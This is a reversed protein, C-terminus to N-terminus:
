DYKLVYEFTIKLDNIYFHQKDKNWFYVTVSLNDNTVIESYLHSLEIPNWQEQKIPTKITLGEWSLLDDNKRIEIVCVFTNLSDTQNLNFELNVAKLGKGLNIEESKKSFKPGFEIEPTIEVAKRESHITFLPSWNLFDLSDKEFSYFIKSTNRDGVLMGDAYVIEVPAQVLDPNDAKIFLCAEFPLKENIFRIHKLMKFNPNKSLWELSIKGEVEMFHSDWLLLTSDPLDNVFAPNGALLPVVKDSDYPALDAYYSVMPHQFCVKKFNPFSTNIYGAMEKVILQENNPKFPFFHQTFPSIAVIILYIAVIATKYPSLKSFTPLNIVNLGILVIIASSPILTALYRVMGLNNLIGPMGCLLSHLVFCGTTCGLFLFFVEFVFDHEIKGKFFKIAQTLIIVIGVVLLIAQATGWIGYYIEFYHFYSGKMGAYNDGVLKYNQTIIWFLDKFHFYGIITYIITAATLLPVAFYKKRYIYVVILLPIVVYAEPRIFPLISAVIASAYFRKNFVLWASFMFFTGFSIEVLGSNMTSFFVPAFFVFVPIAWKYRLNIKSAIDFLFWSILAANLTQFVYMGKLGFQAFPSSILTFFPKGWLYLLLHPHEWSYRAIQYHVIGDGTDYPSDAILYIITTSLFSLLVVLYFLKKETKSQNGPNSQNGSIFDSTSNYLRM